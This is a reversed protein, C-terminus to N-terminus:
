LDRRRFHVKHRQFVQRADGKFIAHRQQDSNDVYDHIDQRM